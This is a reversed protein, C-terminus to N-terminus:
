LIKVVFAIDALDTRYGFKRNCQDKCGEGM